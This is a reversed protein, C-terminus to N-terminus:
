QANNAMADPAGVIRRNRRGPRPALEPHIRKLFQILIDVEATTFLAEIRRRTTERNAWVKAFVRKGKPKLVVSRARSDKPHRMWGVFGRAEMLALTASITDPDSHTQRSV